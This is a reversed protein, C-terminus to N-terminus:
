EKVVASSDGIRFLLLLILTAALGLFVGSLAMSSRQFSDLIASTERSGGRLVNALPYHFFTQQCYGLSLATVVELGVAGTIKAFSKRALMAHVGGLFLSIGVLALLMIGFAIWAGGMSARPNSRMPIGVALFLGGLAAMFVLFVWGFLNATSLVSQRIMVFLYHLGFALLSGPLLGACLLLWYSNM